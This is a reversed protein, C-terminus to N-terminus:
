QAFNPDTLYWRGDHRRFKVPQHNMRGEARDGDISLERLEHRFRGDVGWTAGSSEPLKEGPAQARHAKARRTLVLQVDTLFAGPDLEPVARSVRADRERWVAQKGGDWFYERLGNFIEELPPLGHHKLLADTGHELDESRARLATREEEIEAVDTRHSLWKAMGQLRGLKAGVLRARQDPPTLAVIEFWDAERIGVRVRAVVNEPSDGGQVVDASTRATFAWLGDTDADEEGGGCAGTLLFLAVLVYGGAGKDM